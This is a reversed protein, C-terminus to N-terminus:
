DESFVRSLADALVNKSGPIHVVTPNYRQLTLSWRMLRQNSNRMKMLFSLPNHDSLVTVHGACTVYIDFHELALVMGLTEKEITSYNLQAGNFKKSFFAIPHQTDNCTQLLVAGCGSNSADVCVVFEQRFDPAHLIPANRLFSKLAQFAQECSEEWRFAIGKKLLNTLPAAITSYHPCFKRYYGTMGLFRMLSRRHGPRPFDEIAAIKARIPSVTGSGLEHGLYEVSNQAVKLKKINIVLDRELLRGLVVGLHRLHEVWTSSFVIIDDIYVAAFDELGQLVSTMVSQFAAPAGALGFPLVTWQFLGFPTIFATLHRSSFTLPVQHYGSKLDITSIFSSSAVSDIIDEIRPLPFQNVLTIENLQRFDMILRNDGNKKSVVFCASAYHSSSKEVCGCQLLRQVEDKMAQRKPPSTRYYPQQVPQSSKLVINYPTVDAVRPVDSCIPQHQHLLDTVEVRQQPSLHVLLEDQQDKFDQLDNFTVNGDRGDTHVVSSAQISTAISPKNVQM